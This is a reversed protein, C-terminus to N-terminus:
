DEEKIPKSGQFMENLKWIEVSKPELGIQKTNTKLIVAFLEDDKDLKLIIEVNENNKESLKKFASFIHEDDFKIECSLEVGKRSIWNFQLIKPLARLKFDNRSKNDYYLQEQVNNYLKLRYCTIFNKPREIKEDIIKYEIKPKWTYLERYEEAKGYQIPAKILYQMNAVFKERTSNPGTRMYKAMVDWDISVEKAKFYGIEINTGNTGHMWLVVGGKPTVGVVLYAFREFKSSQYFINNSNSVPWMQDFHKKIIETPLDFEGRYYKNEAISFWQAILKTPISHYNNSGLDGNIQAWAGNGMQGFGVAEKSTIFHSGADESLNNPFSCISTMYYYDGNENVNTPWTESPKIRDKEDEIFQKQKEEETMKKETTKNGQCSGAISIFIVACFLIKKM